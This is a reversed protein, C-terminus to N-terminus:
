PSRQPMCAPAPLMKLTARSGAGGVAVIRVIECRTATTGAFVVRFTGRRSASTAKRMTTERILTVRVREGRDFGAGAVTIPSREQLRLSASTGAQAAAAVAGLCSVVLL